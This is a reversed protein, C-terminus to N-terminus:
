LRCILRNKIENKFVGSIIAKSHRDIHLSSNIKAKNGKFDLKLSSAPFVKGGFVFSIKDLSIKGEIDTADKKNKIALDTNINAKLNYKYLDEFVKLINTKKGKKAPFVESFVAINYSIQKRKNLIVEGKTKLKIKKGLIFNSIKLDSGKLTYDNGKNQLSIRYKKTSIVPM